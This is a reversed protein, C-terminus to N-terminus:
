NGVPIRLGVEMRGGEAATADLELPTPFEQLHASVYADAGSLFLLFIGLAVWDERQQLRSERLARLDEVTADDELAQEIETEDTVGAALLETRVRREHFALREEAEAIRSRTRLIGYASTAEFVFYFGARTRSGIAAHGWGPILAARLFAGTPSVRHRAVVTDVPAPAPRAAPLTPDVQASLPATLVGTLSAALAAGVCLARVPLKKRRNM